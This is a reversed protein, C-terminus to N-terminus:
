VPWHGRTQFEDLVLPAPTPNPPRNSSSICAPHKVPSVFGQAKKLVPPRRPSHTTQTQILSLSPTAQDSNTSQGPLCVPRTVSAPLASFPSPSHIICATTDRPRSKIHFSGPRRGTTCVHEFIPSVQALHFSRGHAFNPHQPHTASLHRLSRLQASSADPHRLSSLAAPTCLHRSRDSVQSTFSRVCNRLHRLTDLSRFENM